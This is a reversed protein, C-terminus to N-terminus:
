SRGPSEQECQRLNGTVGAMHRHVRTDSQTTTCIGSHTQQPRWESSVTPSEGRVEPKSLGLAEHPMATPVRSSPTQGRVPSLSVRGGERGLSLQGLPRFYVTRSLREAPCGLGLARLRGELGPHQATPHKRGACLFLLPLSSSSSVEQGHNPHQLTTHTAHHTSRPTHQTSRPTHHMTRAAHHMSPAAHQTSRSAHHM